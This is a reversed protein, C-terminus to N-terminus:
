DDLLGVLEERLKRLVRSKALYVANGTMKLDVSVKAVSHDEVVLNWCAQWTNAAFETQMIKLAQRCVAQNYEQDSFIEADNAVVAVSSALPVTREVQQARFRMRDICKNRTITRLWSRFSKSSDYSFDDMKKVLITLVEQVCDIAEDESLGLRTSWRQILPAYIRVFKHWADEREGSNKLRLLLSPSTQM